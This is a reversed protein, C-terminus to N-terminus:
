RSFARPAQKKKFFSWSWDCNCLTKKKKEVSLNLELKKASPEKWIDKLNISFSKVWQEFDNIYFFENGIQDMKTQKAVPSIKFVYRFWEDWSKNAFGSDRKKALM